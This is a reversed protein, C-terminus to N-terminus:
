QMLQTQNSAHLIQRLNQLHAGGNAHQVDLGVSDCSLADFYTLQVYSTSTRGIRIIGVLGTHRTCINSTRYSMTGSAEPSVLAATCWPM